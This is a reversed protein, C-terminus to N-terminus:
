KQDFFYLCIALPFCFNMLISCSECWSECWSECCSECCSESHKLSKNINLLENNEQSKNQKVCEINEQLSSNDNSLLTHEKTDM